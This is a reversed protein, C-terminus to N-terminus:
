QMMDMETLTVFTQILQKFDGLALLQKIGIGGSQVKLAYGFSFTEPIGDLIGSFM